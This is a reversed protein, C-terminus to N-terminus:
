RALPLFQFSSLMPQFYRANGSVFIDDAASLAIIYPKGNWLTAYVQFRIGPQGTLAPSGSSSQVGIVAVGSQWTQGGITASPIPGNLRQFQDGWRQQEQGLVYDVWCVSASAIDAGGCLNPDGPQGVQVQYSLPNDYFNVATDRQSSIWAAPYQIQFSGPPDTFLKFGPMPTASLAATPSPTPQPTATATATAAPRTVLAALGAAPEGPLFALLM